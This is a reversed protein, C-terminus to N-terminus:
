LNIGTKQLEVFQKAVRPSRGNCLLAHAEAKKDLEEGTFMLNAEAALFRVIELYEDKRPREYTIALGFRASLSMIEQLTDNLFLENGTRDGVSEKVLHRRNSTAYIAINNKRGSVSGELMAKLTSFNDDNKTFSLDDIFIIFNLPNDSLIEIIEPLQYLQQKTIEILRLGQNRFHNAVAKVTSSKGTGADGYLLVNSAGMGQVLSETNQLVLNKQRDYGILQEISQDDPHKVPSILGQKYIFMNYRSYIGYGELPVLEIRKQYKEVFNIKETDWAPLYGKYKTYININAPSIQSIEELIKLECLLSKELSKPVQKCQAKSLLYINEDNLVAKLIYKSLSSSQKFLEAAFSSYPGPNVSIQPAKNFEDVKYLCDATVLAKLKGIVPDQLLDRFIVLTELQFFLELHKKNYKM